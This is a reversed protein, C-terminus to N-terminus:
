VIWIIWMVFGVVYDSVRVGLVTAEGTFPTVSPPTRGTASPLTSNVTFSGAVGGVPKCLEQSFALIEASDTLPIKLASGHLPHRVKYTPPIVILKRM